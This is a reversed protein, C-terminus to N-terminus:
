RAARRHRLGAVVGGDVVIDIGTLYAADPGALFAVVAAVDDPTGLRALGSGAVMRELTSGLPGDLEQHGMPTAIVGPSVSVLRAGRQGWAGAAGVVRLQTGRKALDYAASPTLDTPDLAPLAALEAASATLLRDELETPIPAALTGAISAICVGVSGPGAVAGFAELVHATGLLDVAIIAAAGAQAPSVGATHVLARLPGRDAAAQALQAVAAPDTVDTPVGLALQGEAQLAAVADALRDEARDALVLHHGPGLRRAVALGMGGTGTVVVVPRPRSSDNM